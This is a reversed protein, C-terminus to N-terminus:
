LCELLDYNEYGGLTWDEWDLGETAVGIRMPVLHVVLRSALHSGGGKIARLTTFFGVLETPKRLTLCSSM